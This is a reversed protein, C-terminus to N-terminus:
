FVYHRVQKRVKITKPDGANANATTKRYLEGTEEEAEGMFAEAIGEGSGIPLSDGFDLLPNPVFLDRAVSTSATKSAGPPGVNAVFLHLPAGASSGIGTEVRCEKPVMGSIRALTAYLTADASVGRSHAYRRINWLVDRQDYFGVEPLVRDQV